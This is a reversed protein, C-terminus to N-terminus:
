YWIKAIVSLGRDNRRFTPNNPNGEELRYAKGPLFWGARLDLGLRQIGFLNRIGVVVDFERGVDKSLRSDDQNMQATLASGRIADATKDLRYRHILLDVSVTPAPRFGFGSTIIHVNSLEPDLVEGYYKFKAAGAFRAENSQLGSQRFETNRSGGADGSGFAYGASVNMPLGPYRYTYGVDVARAAFPRAREDRGGLYALEVWYNLEETPTGYARVGMLRPQGELQARDRRVITYGSLKLDEIGRYEAYVMSTDIRDTAQRGILDWDWAVERGHLAEIRFSGQRLLVSAVDMSTDYLWHREDEYNRRGFNFEFPATVGRITVYGQDVLLASNRKRAVVTEGTPLTVSSEEHVPIEKELIMELTTVLWDTPRYVVIGNLQPKAILSNDRVKRDLDPDRLYSVESESGISYQYNLRQPLEWPLTGPLRHRSTASDSTLSTEGGPARPPLQFQALQIPKADDAAREGNSRPPDRDAPAIRESGQLRGRFVDSRILPADAFVGESRDFKVEAACVPLGSGLTVALATSWGACAAETRSMRTSGAWTKGQAPYRDAGIM